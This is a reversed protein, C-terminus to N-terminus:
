QHSPVEGSRRGRLLAGTLLWLFLTNTYLYRKFMRRPEQWLRYLWELAWRQMWRPCRKQVGATVAFAGGVGLLVANISRFHTAMWKEQKPCGLAVLVINAGSDNIEKIYAQQEEATPTRFPPTISGAIRTQPYQEKIKNKLADVVTETSGYLFISAGAKGAADLIAPMFDMGAIREQKEGHLWRFAIALPKGDAVVLMAENLQQLFAPDKYAEITMHVNAFCVFSPTRTLGAHLVQQLSGAFSVQDIGLSITKFRKNM